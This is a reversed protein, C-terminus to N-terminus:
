QGKWLPKRKEMFAIAGERADESSFVSKQLEANRKAARGPDTITLRVLEKVAALGLPANAAIRGALSLAADLVEDPPTVANVLGLEYARRADIPDGTLTMELAVALPIRTGISTGGGAPYLGRKVEPLGFRATDAAVIVDCGLLLELGGGVATGNAAGVVPVTLEGRSLRTFGAMGDTSIEPGGSAFEHLDMGSCFVRDGAATLVVARVRPDDEAGAMMRGLADILAGNLANRAGPRNLRVILVADHRETLLEEATM